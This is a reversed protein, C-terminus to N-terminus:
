DIERGEIIQSTGGTFAQVDQEYQQGPQKPAKGFGDIV